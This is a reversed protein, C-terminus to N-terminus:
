ILLLIKVRQEYLHRVTGVTILVERTHTEGAAQVLLTTPKTKAQQKRAKARCGTWSSGNLELDTMLMSHLDNSLLKAPISKSKAIRIQSKFLYGRKTDVTLTVACRVRPARGRSTEASAHDRTMQTAVPDSAVIEQRGVEQKLKLYRLFTNVYLKRQMSTTTSEVFGESRDAHVSKLFVCM